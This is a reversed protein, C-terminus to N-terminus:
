QNQFGLGVGEDEENREEEEEKRTRKGKKTKLNEDGFLVALAIECCWRQKRDREFIRQQL